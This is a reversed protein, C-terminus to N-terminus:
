GLFHGSLNRTPNSAAAKVILSLLTITFTSFSMM